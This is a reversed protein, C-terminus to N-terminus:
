SEMRLCGDGCPDSSSGLLLVLSFHPHAKIQAWPIGFVGFGRRLQAEKSGGLGVTCWNSCLSSLFLLNFIQRFWLNTRKYARSGHMGKAFTCSSMKYNNPNKIRVFFFVSFYIRKFFKNAGKSVRRKRVGRAVGGSAHPGGVADEASLPFFPRGLSSRLRRSWGIPGAVNGRSSNTRVVNPQRGKNKLTELTACWNKLYRTRKINKQQTSQFFPVTIFYLCM